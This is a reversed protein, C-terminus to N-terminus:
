KSRETQLKPLNLTTGILFWITFAIERSTMVPLFFGTVAWGVLAGQVARVWMIQVKDQIKKEIHLLTKFTVILFMLYLALYIWGLEGALNFFFGEFFPGAGSLRVAAVGVEGLGSGLPHAALFGISKIFTDKQYNFTPDQGSLSEMIYTSAPTLLALAVGIIGLVFFLRLTRPNRLIVLLSFVLGIWASRAYTAALTIFFLGLVGMWAWTTLSYRPHTQIFWIVLTCLIVLYLGFETAHAFTGVVRQVGRFGQASVFITEIDRFNKLFFPGLIYAQVLGFLSIVVGSIVIGLAVTSMEKFSLFVMRGIFLMILYILDERLSFLATYLSAPGLFLYPLPYLVLLAIWFILIHVRYISFSHYMRRFLLWTFLSLVFIDRISRVLLVQNGELGLQKEIAFVTLPYFPLVILFFIVTIRPHVLIFYVSLTIALGAVIVVFTLSPGIIAFFTLSILSFTTLIAICYLIRVPSNKYKQLM